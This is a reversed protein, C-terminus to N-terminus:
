PSGPSRPDIRVAARASGSRCALVGRLRDATWTPRSIIQEWTLRVVVWGNEVLVPDRERDRAFGRPDRGHTEWGDCEAIVRGLWWAFDVEFGCIVPHFAPQPLQFRSCLEAMAPELVSDPPKDLPWAALAERLAVVGARGRQSHQLVTAEVSRRTLRAVVALHTLADGVAEPAVAGLDVLTRLPHTVPVGAHRVMGLSAVDSPRHIVAGPVIVKRRDPVAVDVPCEGRLGPVGFVAAASRHSARAGPGVALVRALIRLEPTDPAGPLRAVGPVVLVLRDRALARYWASRSIVEAVLLQRLTVLGLQTRAFPEIVRLDM